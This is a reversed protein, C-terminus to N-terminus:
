NLNFRGKILRKLLKEDDLYLTLNLCGQLDVSEGAYQYGVEEFANLISALNTKSTDIDYVGKAEDGASSQKIIDQLLSKYNKKQKRKLSKIDFATDVILQLKNSSPVTVAKNKDEGESQTISYCSLLLM